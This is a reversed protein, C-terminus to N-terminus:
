HLPSNLGLIREFCEECTWSESVLLYLPTAGPLFLIIFLHFLSSCSLVTIGSGISSLYKGSHFSVPFSPIRRPMGNFRLVHMPSFTLIMIMSSVEIAILFLCRVPPHSYFSPAHPHGSIHEPLFLNRESAVSISRSQHWWDCDSGM